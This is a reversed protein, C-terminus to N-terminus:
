HQPDPAGHRSPAASPAAPAARAGPRHAARGPGHHHRGDGAAAAAAPRSRDAPRGRPRRRGGLRAGVFVLAPWCGPWAASWAARTSGCAGAPVPGRATAALGGALAGSALWCLLLPSGPGAAPLAGLLPLGPLMGLETAAPAVVSGAGLAFGSGLAYSAAWVLANPVVALQALLLAIGGPSEPTWRRRAPRHGPRSPPDPRDAGAGAGFVLLVLQAGLVARPLARAWDPWGTPSGGVSPGAPAGSPPWARARRHRGGLAAPGALAPGALGRRGAGPGPLHGAPRRGGHVTRGAPRPPGPARRVRGVLGDHVRGRRHRGVARPHRGPRRAVREGRQEAALAPHRRRARRGAHRSRRGALRGRGSRRVAGLGALASVLGGAVAAVPWGLPPGASADAPPRPNSRARTAPGCPSSPSPGGLLCCRPWPRGM